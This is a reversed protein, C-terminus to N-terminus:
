FRLESDTAQRMTVYGHFKSRGFVWYAPVTVIPTFNLSLAWAITGQATRTNMVADISSYFGILHAVVFLAILIKWRRKREKKKKGWM